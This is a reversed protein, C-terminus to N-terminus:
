GARRAYESPRQPGPSRSAIKDRYFETQSNMNKVHLIVELLGTVLSGKQKNRCVIVLTAGMKALEKATEKGIGPNSWHRHM